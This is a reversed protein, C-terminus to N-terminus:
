CHVRQLRARQDPLLGKAVFVFDSLHLRTTIGVKACTSCLLGDTGEVCTVAGTSRNVLCAEPALCTYFRIVMCDARSYGYVWSKGTALLAM